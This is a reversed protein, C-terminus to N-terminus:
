GPKSSDDAQDTSNPQHIVPRPSHWLQIEPEKVDERRIRILMEVPPRLRSVSKAWEDDKLLFRATYNTSYRSNGAIILFSKEQAPATESLDITEGYVLLCYDDTISDSHDALRRSYTEKINGRARDQIGAQSRPVSVVFPGPQYREAEEENIAFVYGDTVNGKDQDIGKLQAMIYNSLPNQMGIVVLNEDKFPFTGKTVKKNKNVFGLRAKFTGSRVSRSYLNFLGQQIISAGVIDTSRLTPETGSEDQPVVIVTDEEIFPRWFELLADDDISKGFVSDELSSIETSVIDRVMDAFSNRTMWDFLVSVFGAMLAAIGIDRAVTSPLVNTVNLLILSLGIIILILGVLISRDTFIQQRLKSLM